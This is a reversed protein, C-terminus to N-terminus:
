GVVLSWPLPTPVRGRLQIKSQVMQDWFVAVSGAFPLVACSVAPAQRAAGSRLRAQANCDRCKPKLPPRHEARRTRAVARSPPTPRCYFGFPVGSLAAWAALRGVVVWPAMPLLCAIAIGLVAGAKPPIAAQPFWRGFCPFVSREYRLHVVVLELQVVLDRRDPSSKLKAKRICAVHVGRQWPKATHPCLLM